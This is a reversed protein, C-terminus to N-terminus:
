LLYNNAFNALNPKLGVPDGHRFDFSPAHSMITVSSIAPHMELADEAVKMMNQCSSGVRQKFFDTNDSPRVKSTDLNSIDVTPAALVLHNFADKELEKKVVDTVNLHKFRADKDWVSSYAKSTKVTTNSVQELKRFNINHAISDGVLLLRPKRQYETKRKMNSPSTRAGNSTDPTKAKPPATPNSSTLPAGATSKTPPKPKSKTKAM